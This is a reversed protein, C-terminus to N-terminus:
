MKEEMASRHHKNRQSHLRIPPHIVQYQLHHCEYAGQHLSYTASTFDAGMNRLAGDGELAMRSWVGPTELLLGFVIAQRATLWFWDHFHDNNKLYDDNWPALLRRVLESGTIRLNRMAARGLRNLHLYYKTKDNWEYEYHMEILTTNHHSLVHECAQITAKQDDITDKSRFTRLEELHNNAKLINLIPVLDISFHWLSLCRLLQQRKLLQVIYATFTPRSPRQMATNRRLDLRTLSVARPMSLFPDFLSRWYSVFTNPKYITSEMTTTSRTKKLELNWHVCNIFLTKLTSSGTFGRQLAQIWSMPNGTPAAFSLYVHRLYQNAELARRLSDPLFVGAAGSICCIALNLEELSGNKHLTSFFFKLAAASITHSNLSLISLNPLIKCLLRMWPIDVLAGAPVIKLYKDGPTRAQYLSVAKEALSQAFRLPYYATLLLIATTKKAAARPFLDLLLELVSCSERAINDRVSHERLPAATIASLQVYRTLAVDFPLFAESNCRQLLEPNRRALFAIVARSSFRCAVHIPLNSENDEIEVVKPCKEVFSDIIGIDHLGTKLLVHLPSEKRKGFCPLGMLDPQQHFKTMLELAIENANEPENELQSLLRKAQQLLSRRM